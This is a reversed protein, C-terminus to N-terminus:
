GYKFKLYLVISVLIFSVGNALIVPPQHILMGYIFWLAIGFALALYMPLSLDKTHRTRVCQLVQPIFSATTLVGAVLGLSSVFNEM